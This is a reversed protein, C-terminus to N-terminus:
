LGCGQQVLFEATDNVSSREFSELTSFVISEPEVTDDLCLM